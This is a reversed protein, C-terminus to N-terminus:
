CASQAMARYESKENSRFVVSQKKSKWSVLNGGVFMTVRLQGEIKRLDQRIQMRSVNLDIISMIVTYFVM